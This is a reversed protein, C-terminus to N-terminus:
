LMTKKDQLGGYKYTRLLVYNKPYIAYVEIMRCKPCPIEVILPTSIELGMRKIDNFYDEVNINMLFRKTIKCRIEM